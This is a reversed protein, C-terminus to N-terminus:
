APVAPVQISGDLEASQAAILEELAAIVMERHGTQREYALVRNLDHGDDVLRQMLEPLSGQFDLYRPWPAEVLVATMQRFDQADAARRTLFNEVYTQFDHEVGREDTYIKGGWNLRLAEEETDFVSIRDVLPTMTVEDRETTRGTILGGQVFEREAFELDADTIDNQNFWAVYGERDEIRDGYQTYHSRPEIIQVGFKRIHSVFRM